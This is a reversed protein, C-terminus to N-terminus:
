KHTKLWFKRQARAQADFFIDGALHLAPSPHSAVNNYHLDLWAATQPTNHHTKTAESGAANVILQYKPANTNQPWGARASIHDTIPWGNHTLAREIAPSVGGRGFIATPGPQIGAQQLHQLTATMGDFDTDTAQWGEPTRRLTNAAPLNEPNEVNPPELITRKLPSTVSLGRFGLDHLLPLTEHLEEPTIPIAVYGHQISPDLEAFARHWIVGLSNDVPDGILADFSNIPIQTLHPLWKQLDYHQWANHSLNQAIGVPMYNTANAPLSFGHALLPRLWFFRPNQPLFTTVYGLNQLKKTFALAIRLESINEVRPAYKLVLKETLHPHSSELQQAATLLADMDTSDVRTPHTSLLFRTPRRASVDKSARATALFQIDIDLATDHPFAELWVPDHTRLSALWQTSPIAQIIQSPQAFFDSSLEVGAMGLANADHLARTIQTDDTPVLYTKSTVPTPTNVALSILTALHIAAREPTRTRPTCYRIHAVAQWRPERESVMTQIEAAFDLDPHLRQRETQASEQWGDRGLWVYFPGLPLTECGAGVAIIRPKQQNAKIIEVLQQSEIARFRAPNEAVMEAATKQEISEIREDLDIFDWSLIEAILRATTTKGVTRHGILCVTHFDRITNRNDVNLESACYILSM